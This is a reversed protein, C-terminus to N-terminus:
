SRNRRRQTACRRDVIMAEIQPPPDLPPSIGEENQLIRLSAIGGTALSQAFSNFAAQYASQDAASMLGNPGFTAEYTMGPWYSRGKARPGRAATVKRVLICVQPDAAGTTRPGVVNVPVQVRQDADFVEVSELTVANSLLPRLDAQYSLSLVDAADLLSLEGLAFDLVTAARGKFFNPSTFHFIGRATGTPIIVTMTRLIDGWIRGFLYPNLPLNRPPLPPRPLPADVRGRDPSGLRPRRCEHEM